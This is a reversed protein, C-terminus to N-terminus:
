LDQRWLTVTYTVNTNSAVNVGIYKWFRSDLGNIWVWKKTVTIPTTIAASAAATGADAVVYSLDEWISGDLSGQVKWSIAPGGGVATVNFEILARQITECGAESVRGTGTANRVLVSDLM